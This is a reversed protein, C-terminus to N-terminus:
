DAQVHNVGVIQNHKTTLCNTIVVHFVVVDHAIIDLLVHEVHLLLLEQLWVLEKEVVLIDNVSIRVEEVGHAPVVDM